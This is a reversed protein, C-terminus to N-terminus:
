LLSLQNRHRESDRIGTVVWCRGWLVHPKRQSSKTHEAVLMWCECFSNRERAEGPDGLCPLLCLWAIQSLPFPQTLRIHGRHPSKLADCWSGVRMRAGVTASVRCGGTVRVWTTARPPSIPTDGEYQSTSWHTHRRWVTLHVLWHTQETNHPSSISTGVRNSSFNGSCLSRSSREQEKKKM